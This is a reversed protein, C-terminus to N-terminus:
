ITVELNWYTVMNTLTANGSDIVNLKYYTPYQTLTVGDTLMGPLDVTGSGDPYYTTGHVKVAKAVEQYNEWLQKVQDKWSNCCCDNDRARIRAM